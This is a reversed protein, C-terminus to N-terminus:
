DNLARNDCREREHIGVHAQEEEQSGSAKLWNAPKTESGRREEPTLGTTKFRLAEGLAGVRVRIQM